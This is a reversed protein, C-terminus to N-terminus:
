NPLYGPFVGMNQVTQTPQVVNVCALVCMCVDAHVCVCMYICVCMCMCMCLCVQVCYMDFQEHHEVNYKAMCKVCCTNSRTNSLKGQFLFSWM